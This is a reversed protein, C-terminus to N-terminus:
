RGETEEASVGQAQRGQDWLRLQDANRTVQEVANTVHSDPPRLNWGTSRWKSEAVIVGAPGVLLHDVDGAAGLLFRNILRWSHKRLPRLKAATWREATSGMHAAATGTVELIVVILTATAATALVGIVLGRWVGAPASWAAGATVAVAVLVMVGLHRWGDQLFRLQLRRAEAPGHALVAIAQWGGNM